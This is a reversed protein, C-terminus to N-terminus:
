WRLFAVLAVKLAAESAAELVEADVDIGGRPSGAAGGGTEM